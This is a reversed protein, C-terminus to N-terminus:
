AGEGSDVDESDRRRVWVRVSEDTVIFPKLTELHGSPLQGNEYAKMLANNDVKMYEDLALARVQATSDANAAADASKTVFKEVARVKVRLDGLTGSLKEWGTERAIQTMKEKLADRRATLEKVKSDLEVYADVDEALRRVSEASGDIPLDAQEELLNRHVKAPCMEYYECWNCHTAEHTPFDDLRGAREIALVAQRLEETIEDLEEGSFRYRVVEDMRLFYQAVEITEFQPHAVKVGLHYLGMQFLFHHDTVKALRRGTKYDCVEIVGDDRKWLRDVKGRFRMSTGPLEFTIDVEAGLLTGQDFPQYKDWFAGLLRGGARITDDVTAYEGAPQIKKTDVGSWMRDYQDIADARAIVVGDQAARYLKEIVDHVIRGLELEASVVPPLERREIYKFKYKRPCQRFLDLSSFSQVRSM